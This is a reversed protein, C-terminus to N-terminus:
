QGIRPVPPRTNHHADPGHSEPKPAKKRDNFPPYDAFLDFGGTLNAKYCFTMIEDDQGPVSYYVTGIMYPEALGEIRLGHEPNPELKAHGMTSFTPTKEGGRLVMNLENRNSSFTRRATRSDAIPLFSETMTNRGHNHVFRGLEDASPFDQVNM